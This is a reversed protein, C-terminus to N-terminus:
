YYQEDKNEKDDVFKQHMHILLYALKEDDCMNQSIPEQSAFLTTDIETERENKFGHFSCSRETPYADALITSQDSNDSEEAGISSISEQTTSETTFISSDAFYNTIQSSHLSSYDSDFNSLETSSQTPRNEDQNNM